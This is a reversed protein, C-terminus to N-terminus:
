HSNLKAIIWLGVILGIIAGPALGVAGGIGTFVLVIVIQILCGM